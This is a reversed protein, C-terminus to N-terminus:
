TYMTTQAVSIMAQHNEVIASGLETLGPPEAGNDFRRDSEFGYLGPIIAGTTAGSGTWLWASEDDVRFPSATMQWEGFMVGILANEPRPTTLDRYRCSAANPASGMLPDLAC